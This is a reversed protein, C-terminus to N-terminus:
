GLSQSLFLKDLSRTGMGFCGWQFGYFVTAVPLQLEGMLALKYLQVPQAHCLEFPVNALRFISSHLTWGAPPYM